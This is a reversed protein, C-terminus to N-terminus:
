DIKRSGMQKLPIGEKCLPCEDELYSIIDMTLAPIFKTGFEVQGNSRDVLSAVGQVKCNLDKMLAIVEKVSGGTTIVDEVILVRAGEPLTFGRRLTMQNEERETFLSKVGLQRAMEYALIIGGVAPGVVYEIKDERFGDALMGLVESTYTPEQTLKACQVYKDGHRGSTLLFHGEMLMDTEKFIEVVRKEDIMM